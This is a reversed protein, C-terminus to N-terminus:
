RKTDYGARRVRKTNTGGRLGILREGRKQKGRESNGMMSHLQSRENTDDVLKKESKGGWETRCGENNGGAWDIRGGVGSDRTPDDNNNGKESRKANEGEVGRRGGMGKSMKEGGSKRGGKGAGGGLQGM